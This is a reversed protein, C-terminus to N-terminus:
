ESFFKRAVVLYQLGVPSHIDCQCGCWPCDVLLKKSVGIVVFQEMILTWSELLRSSISSVILPWHAFDNRVFDTHFLDVM